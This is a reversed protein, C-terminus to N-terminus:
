LVWMYFGVGDVGRKYFTGSQDGLKSLLVGGSEDAWEVFAGGALLGLRRKPVGQSEEVGEAGSVSIKWLTRRRSASAKM